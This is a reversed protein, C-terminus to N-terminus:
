FRLLCDIAAQLVKLCHIKKHNSHYHADDEVNPKVRASLFGDLALVCGHLPKGAAQRPSNVNRVVQDDVRRTRTTDTIQNPTSRM